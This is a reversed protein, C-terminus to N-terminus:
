AVLNDNIQNNLDLKHQITDLRHAIKRQENIELEPIELTM